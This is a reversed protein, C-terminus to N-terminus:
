KGRHVDVVLTLGGFNMRQMSTPQDPKNLGAQMEPDNHMKKMAADRVERSPWECSSFVVTEDGETAVSRKFDTVKGYMM